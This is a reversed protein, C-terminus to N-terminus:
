DWTEVVISTNWFILPSRLNLGLPQEEERRAQLRGISSKEVSIEYFIGKKNQKTKNKACFGKCERWTLTCYYQNRGDGVVGEL